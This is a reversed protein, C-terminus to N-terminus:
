QPPYASHHPDPFGIVPSPSHPSPIRHIPLTASPHIPVTSVVATTPSSAVVAHSTTPVPPPHLCHRLLLAGCRARQPHGWQRSPCLLLRACRLPLRPVVIFPRYRILRKRTPGRDGGVPRDAGVPSRHDINPLVAGTAPIGHLLGAVRACHAVHQNRSSGWLNSPHVRRRPISRQPTEGSM